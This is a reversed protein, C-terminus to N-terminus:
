LEDRQQSICQRPQTHLFLARRPFRTHCDSKNGARIRPRHIGRKERPTLARIYMTSEPDFYDFRSIFEDTTGSLAEVGELNRMRDLLIESGKKVWSEDGTFAGARCLGPGFVAVERLTLWNTSGNRVAEYMEKAADSAIRAITQDGTHEALWVAPLVIGPSDKKDELIRKVPEIGADNSMVCQVRGLLYLMLTFSDVDALTDPGVNRDAWKLWEGVLDAQLTRMEDKLARTRETEIPPYHM